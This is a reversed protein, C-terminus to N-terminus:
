GGRKRRGVQIKVQSIWSWYLRFGARHWSGCHGTLRYRTRREMSALFPPNWFLKDLSGLRPRPHKRKLVVLQQGLALNELVLSRQTRFIRLIAGLWLRSLAFM